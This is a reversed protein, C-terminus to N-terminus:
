GDVLRGPALMDTRSVAREYSARPVLTWPRSEAHGVVAAGFQATKQCEAIIIQSGPQGTSQIRHLKGTVGQLFCIHLKAPTRIQRRHPPRARVQQAHGFVDGQPFQMRFFIRNREIVRLDGEVNGIFRGSGLSTQFRLDFEFGKLM